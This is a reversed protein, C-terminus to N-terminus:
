RSTRVPSTEGSISMPVGRMKRHGKISDIAREPLINVQIHQNINTITPNQLKFTVMLQEGEAAWIKNRSAAINNMTENHYEIPYARRMHHRAGQLNGFVRDCWPWLGDQDSPPPPDTAPSITRGRSEPTTAAVGGQNLPPPCCM